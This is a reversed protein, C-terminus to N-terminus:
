SLKFVQGWVSLTLVRWLRESWDSSGYSRAAYLRRLYALDFHQAAFRNGNFVLNETLQLKRDLLWAAIPTPSGQKDRRELIQPPVIGTM